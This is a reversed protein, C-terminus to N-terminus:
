AAHVIGFSVNADRSKGPKARKRENVAAREWPCRKATPHRKGAFCGTILLERRKHGFPSIGQTGHLLSEM